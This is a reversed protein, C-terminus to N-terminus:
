LSHGPMTVTASSVVNTPVPLVHAWAFGLGRDLAVMHFTELIYVSLTSILVYIYPSAVLFQCNSM